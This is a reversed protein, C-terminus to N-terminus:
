FLPAGVLSRAAKAARSGDSALESRWFGRNQIHLAYKRRENSSLFNKNEKM